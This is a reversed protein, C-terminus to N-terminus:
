SGCMLMLMTYLQLNCCVHGLEPLIWQVSHLLKFPQRIFILLWPYRRVARERETFEESVVASAGLYKGNEDRCVAAVAGVLDSRSIGGDVHVKCM